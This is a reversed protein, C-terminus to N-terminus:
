RYVQRRAAAIEAGIAALVESLNFEGRRIAVSRLVNLEDHNMGAEALEIALEWRQMGTAVRLEIQELLQVAYKDREQRHRWAAWLLRRLEM